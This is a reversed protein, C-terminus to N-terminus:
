TSRFIGHGDEIIDIVKPTDSTNVYGCFDLM